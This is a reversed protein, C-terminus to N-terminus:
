HVDFLHFSVFIQTFLIWCHMPKDQRSQAASPFMKITENQAAALVTTSAKQMGGDARL